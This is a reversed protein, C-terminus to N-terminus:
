RRRHYAADPWGESFATTYVTDGTTASKLAALYDPHAGSEVSALFRTGVRAADAGANLVGALAGGSAFNARGIVHAVSAASHEYAVRM